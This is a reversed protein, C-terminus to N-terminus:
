GSARKASTTVAPMAETYSSPVKSSDNGLCLVEIKFHSVFSNANPPAAVVQVADNRALAAKLARLYHAEAEELAQPLSLTTAADLELPHAMKRLTRKRARQASLKCFDSRRSPTTSGLKRRAAADEARASCGCRAQM